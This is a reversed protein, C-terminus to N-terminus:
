FIQRVKAMDVEGLGQVNLLSGTSTLRVSNVLGLALATADVKDTGKTAKVTFSYNGDPLVNGNDDKGDWQFAFSGADRSGLKNTNVLTGYQDYVDVEVQDAAASLDVGAVATGGKLTLLNGDTLVGHGIMSASQMTQTAAYSASLSQLTQNLKEIGSVTQIQAMQTTVQANDMPNLPDQNQMQAVLLKLFRDQADAVNNASSPTAASKTNTADSVISSTVSLSM